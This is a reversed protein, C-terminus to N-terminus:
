VHARGIESVIHKGNPSFAVSSVTNTHGQLLNGVQGGTQVDWVRITQDWSGSVIHRGDPSLAVSNVSDTHGQLPNGMQTGTQADWVRITHDSSGSVIYRGNPSFTVSTVLGTHGQLVHQNCPWDEHWGKVLKAVSPFSATLINALPSRSPLFPLGSLYLHPTSEAIM